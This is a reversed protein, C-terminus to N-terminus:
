FRFILTNFRKKNMVMYQLENILQENKLFAQKENVFYHLLRTEAYLGM